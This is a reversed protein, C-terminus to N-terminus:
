LLRLQMLAAEVEWVEDEKVLAVGALLANGVAESRTWSLVIDLGAEPLHRRLWSKRYPEETISRILEALNLVANASTFSIVSALLSHLDNGLACNGVLLTSLNFNPPQYLVFPFAVRFVDRVAVIEGYPWTQFRAYNLKGAILDADFSGHGDIVMLELIRPLFHKYNMETGATYLASHAFHSLNETKLQRLPASTIERWIRDAKETTSAEIASPKRYASFVDYATEIAARWQAELQEAQTVNAGKEKLTRGHRQM